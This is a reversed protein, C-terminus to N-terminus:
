APEDPAEGRPRRRRPKRDAPAERGTQGSAKAEARRRRGPRRFLSWIGWAGVAAFFAGIAKALATARNFADTLRDVKDNVWDLWDPAPTVEVILPTPDHPYDRKHGNVVLETVLVLGLRGSRQPTVWWQPDFLVRGGPQAKTCAPTVREIAFADDQEAKLTFCMEHTYPIITGAPTGPSVGAGSGGEGGIQAGPRGQITEDYRIKATFLVRKGQAMALPGPDLRGRNLARYEREMRMVGICEQEDRIGACREALFVFEDIAGAPVGAFGGNGARAAAACEEYTVRGRQRRCEAVLRELADSLLTRDEFLWEAQGAPAASPRVSEDDVIARASRSIIQLSRTQGRSPGGRQDSGSDGPVPPAEPRPGLLLYVPGGDGPPWARWSADAARVVPRSWVGRRLLGLQAAEVRRDLLPEREGTWAARVFVPRGTPGGGSLALVVAGTKFYLQAAQEITRAMEASIGDSGPEFELVFARQGGILLPEPPPIVLPPERRLTDSIAPVESPPLAAPHEPRAVQVKAACGCLLLLILLTKLAV